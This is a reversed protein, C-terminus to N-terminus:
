HVASAEKYRAALEKDASCVESFAAAYSIGRREAMLALVKKHLINAIGESDGGEIQAGDVTTGKAPTGALATIVVASAFTPKVAAFAAPNDSAVKELETAQAPTIKFERVLGAIFAKDEGLVRLAREESITKESLALKAALDNLQKGMAEANNQETLNAPAPVATPVPVAVPPEGGNRNSNHNHDHTGMGLAALAAQFGAAFANQTPPEQQLAIPAILAPKVFKNSLMNDGGSPPAIEGHDALSEGSTALREFDNNYVRGIQARADDTLEPFSFKGQEQTRAFQLVKEFGAGPCAGDYVASVEGCHADELSFTACGDSVGLAVQAAIEDEDMAYTTGPIHPCDYYGYHYDGQEDYGGPQYGFLDEGCVDCICDGGYLGVSCDFVTGADIGASLADTSPGDDGNPSVGALMYMGVVARGVSEGTEADAVTEYRAAFTRGMPLESRRHSNMFAFGDGADLVINKLTSEALFLYRDAVFRTSAAELYHIHLDALAYPKGTAARPAIGNIVALAETDTKPLKGVGGRNHPSPDMKLSLADGAKERCVAATKSLFRPRVRHMRGGAELTTRM